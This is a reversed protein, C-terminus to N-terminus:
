TGQPVTLPKARAAGTAPALRATKELGGRWRGRKHTRAEQQASLSGWGRFNFALGARVRSDEWIASASARAAHPRPPRRWRLLHPRREGDWARLAGACPQSPAPAPEDTMQGLVEASAAALVGPLALRAKSSSRSASGLARDTGMRAM